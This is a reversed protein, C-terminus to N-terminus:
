AFLISSLRQRGEMTVPDGHGLAEFIKLLQKRAADDNWGRDAAVIELLQDIAEEAKNQGYLMVAYDFRLQHDKPNKELQQELASAEATSEGGQEAGQEALELASIASAVEKQSTIEKPMQTAIQRCKDFEKLGILSRMFGGIAAPNTQDHGLIQQYTAGAIQYDGAELAADAQELAQDIPSKADGLAKQIFARLKSEPIAGHFSDVPQGHKFLFVTPISKVGLQHAIQQNEDFNIKVLRVLGGAQLVLKELMPMLTKCPECWPAWFDVLVPQRKSEEIVDIMFGAMGSEKILNPADRVEPNAGADPGQEPQNSDAIVSM